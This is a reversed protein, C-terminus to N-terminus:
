GVYMGISNVDISIAPKEHDDVAIAKAFAEKEVIKKCESYKTKADKDNPRFKVM